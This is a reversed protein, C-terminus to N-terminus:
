KLQFSLCKYVKQMIINTYTISRMECIVNFIMMHCIEFLYPPILFNHSLNLKLLFSFSFMLIYFYHKSSL